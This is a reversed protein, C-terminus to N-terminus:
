KLKEELKLIREHLYLNLLLSRELISTLTQGNFVQDISKKELEKCNHIFWHNETEYPGHFCKSNLDMQDGAYYTEYDVM